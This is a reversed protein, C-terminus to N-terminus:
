RLVSNPNRHGNLQKTCNSPFHRSQRWWVPQWSPRSTKRNHQKTNSLLYALAESGSCFMMSLTVFVAQSTAQQQSSYFDSSRRKQSSRPVESVNKGMPLFQMSRSCTNILICLGAVRSFLGAMHIGQGKTNKVYRSKDSRVGATTSKRVGQHLFM